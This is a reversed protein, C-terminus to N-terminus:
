LYLLLLTPYNVKQKLIGSLEQTFERLKKLVLKHYDEVWAYRAIIGRAPDNKIEDPLDQLYYNIGILVISKAEPFIELPNLRKKKVRRIWNMGGAYGRKLWEELYKSDASPKAPILGILDFGFQQGMTVIKKSSIM